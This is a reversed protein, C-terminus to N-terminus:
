VIAPTPISVTRTLTTYASSTASNTPTPRSGPGDASQAGESWTSQSAGNEPVIRDAPDNSQWKETNNSGGADVWSSIDTPSRDIRVGLRDASLHQRDRALTVDVVFILRYCKYHYGKNWVSEIQSKIKSALFPTVQSSVGRCARAKAKTSDSSLAGSCGSYIQLRATVTITKAKQDVVWTVAGLPEGAMVVRPQGGVLMALTLVAAAAVNKM